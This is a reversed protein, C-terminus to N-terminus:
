IGRIYKKTNFTCEVRGVLIQGAYCINDYNDLHIRISSM